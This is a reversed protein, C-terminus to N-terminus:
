KNLDMYVWKSIIKKIREIDDLKKKSHNKTDILWQVTSEIEKDTIELISYSKDSNEKNDNITINLSEPTKSISDLKKLFEDKTLKKIEKSIFLKNERASLKSLGKNNYLDKSLEGVAQATVNQEPEISYVLIFELLNQTINILIINKQYYFRDNFEDISKEINQRYLVLNANKKPKTLQLIFNFSSVYKFNKNM